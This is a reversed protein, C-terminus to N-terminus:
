PPMLLFLAALLLAVVFAAFGFLALLVVLAFFCAVEASTRLSIALITFEPALFIVLATM